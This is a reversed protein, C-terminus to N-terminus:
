DFHYVVNVPKSEHRGVTVPRDLPQNHGNVTVRSLKSGNGKFKISLTSDNFRLQSLEKFGIEHLLGYQPNLVMGSDTYEMGILGTLVMRIYGTASWTQHHVSDWHRGIQWGGDVEGTKENYIEWFCNNGKDVALMALNRFEKMFRNSYGNKLCAEAWFANVFPWIMQNHRGPQDASFRKFTPAISPLGYEGTYAGEIIARSEAPSVIGFLMAFSIGLGEQHRHVNGQNDILYNLRCASSDFLHKRINAKLKEAKAGYGAAQDNHDLRTAMRSLNQYAEYYICNTSLCKISHSAEYDLVYSSENNPQYIPEEYGAIGDNFVSPGTFLGYDADFVETELKKMTNSSAVFAQEMFKLDDTVKYHNWAGTVWIIKDWYQHGILSRNDTTVSWLSYAAKEPMLLSAGNWANISVDRTWEGGYTGGAKILSDPTNDFLTEIAITFAKDIQPESTVIKQAVVTQGAFLSVM